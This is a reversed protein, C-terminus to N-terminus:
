GSARGAITGSSGRALSYTDTLWNPAGSVRPLCVDVALLGGYSSLLDREQAEISGDGVKALWDEGGHQRQIDCM